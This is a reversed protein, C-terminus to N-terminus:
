VAAPEPASSSATKGGTAATAGGGGTKGGTGTTGGSGSKGGTGTAGAAGTAGGTATTGGAGTVGGTPTGGTAGYEYAGLDPAAGVFPLQVNTGKDIMQSGAALKLFDV